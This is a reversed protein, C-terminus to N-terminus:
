TCLLFLIVSSLLATGTDKSAWEDDDNPWEIIEEEEDRLGLHNWGAGSKKEVL